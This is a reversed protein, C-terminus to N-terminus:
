IGKETIRSTPTNIAAKALFNKTVSVSKFSTPKKVSNSRNHGAGDKRGLSDPKSTDTDSGGSADGALNRDGLPSKSLARIPLAVETAPTQADEGGHGSSKLASVESTFSSPSTAVAPVADVAIQSSSTAIDDISSPAGMSQASKVVDHAVQEAM